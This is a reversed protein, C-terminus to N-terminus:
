PSTPSGLLFPSISLATSSTFPRILLTSHSKSCLSRARRTLCRGTREQNGAYTASTILLRRKSSVSACRFLSLRARIPSPKREVNSLQDHHLTSSALLHCAQARSASDQDGHVIVGSRMRRHAPTLLNGSSDLHDNSIHVSRFSGISQPDAPYFTSSPASASSVPLGLLFGATCAPHGQTTFQHPSHPRSGGQPPATQNLVTDGAKVKRHCFLHCHNENNKTVRAFPDTLLSVRPFLNGNSTTGLSLLSNAFSSTDPGSASDSCNRTNWQFAAQGKPCVKAVWLLREQVIHSQVKTARTAGTDCTACVNRVSNFASAPNSFRKFAPSSPRILSSARSFGICNFCPILAM